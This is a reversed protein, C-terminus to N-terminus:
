LPSVPIWPIFTRQLYVKGLPVIGTRWSPHATLTWPGACSGVKAETRDAEDLERKLRKELGPARGCDFKIM